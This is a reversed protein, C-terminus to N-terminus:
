LSGNKDNKQDKEEDKEKKPQNNSLYKNKKFNPM